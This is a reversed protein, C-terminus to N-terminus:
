KKCREIFDKILNRMDERDQMREPHWQVCIVSGDKNEMAEPIGDPATGVIEFGPAVDKVAQHHSTNITFETGLIKALRCDASLKVDHFNEVGDPLMSHNIEKGHEIPIDQYLTGGEVANVLQMGRCIALVPKGQKKAENYVAIEYDNDTASSAGCYEKREENYISPEIDAGGPMMVGDLHSVIEAVNDLTPLCPLLICIGGNLEIAQPYTIRQAYMRPDFINHSTVGIIPKKM